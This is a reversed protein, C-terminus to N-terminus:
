QVQLTLLAKYRRFDAEPDADRLMQEISRLRVVVNCFIELLLETAGAFHQAKMAVVLDNWVRKQEAGLHKAADPKRMAVDVFPVVTLSAASKRGRQKM